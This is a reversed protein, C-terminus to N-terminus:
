LIVWIYISLILEFFILALLVYIIPIFYDYHQVYADNQIKSKELQNIENYVRAVDQPKKVDFFKGGTEQAVKQLLDTNFNNPRQIIGFQHQQMSIGHSGIGITYIKIGFIKAIDIADEIPLDKDPTPEGDTLLIIIKSKSTSKQLRRCATILSQSIVTYQHIPDNDALTISNIMKKLMEKDSTLPCTMLAYSGFIVLGIADNHRKELFNIAETKAITIRSRRDKLDDFQEMSGSVDLVMMIDIGEVTIKSKKDILQPKALLVLMILLILFRLAYLVYAPLLSAKKYHKIIFDVLPYKYLTPLTYYRRILITIIFIPIAIYLWHAYAFRFFLHLTM